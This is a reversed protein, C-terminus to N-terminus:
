LSASTTSFIALILLEVQGCDSSGVLCGVGTGDVAFGVDVGVCLGVSRGVDIGVCLGVVM